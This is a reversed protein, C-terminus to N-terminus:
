LGNKQHNNQTEAVKILADILATPDEQLQLVSNTM